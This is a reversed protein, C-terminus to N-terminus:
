GNVASEFEIVLLKEPDDGLDYVLNIELKGDIHVEM